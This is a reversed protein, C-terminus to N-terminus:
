QTFCMRTRLPSTRSPRSRTPTSCGRWLEARRAKQGPAYRIAVPRVKGAYGHLFPEPFAGVVVPERM